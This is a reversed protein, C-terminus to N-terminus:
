KPISVTGSGTVRNGFADECTVKITYVRGNGNGSREARLRVAHPGLVQWDVNTNGDGPANVPENSDVAVSCVPPGTVDASTYSVMVDFMKHNPVHVAAPTVAVASLSPATTDVVTITRTKTTTNFGDSVAYAITYSGPVLNNIAGTIQIASTLDGACIDGATAGPEAWPSGAELTVADDGTLLLSPATTDVVNVTRTASASVFGNDATYTLTYSGCAGTAIAGTV